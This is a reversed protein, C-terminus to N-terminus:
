MLDEINLRRCKMAGDNQQCHVKATTTNNKKGTQDTPMFEFHAFSYFLLNIDRFLNM